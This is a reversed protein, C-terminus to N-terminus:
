FYRRRVAIVASKFAGIIFYTLFSLRPSVCKALKFKDVININSKPDLMWFVISKSKISDTDDFANDLFVACNLLVFPKIGQKKCRASFEDDGGYHSLVASNYNGIKKFIEIPHLLFRGTIFDVEIETELLSKESKVGEIIKKTINLFWSRVIVGTTIYLDPDSSSLTAPACIVKRQNAEVFTSMKRLVDLDSIRVDNNMLILYDQDSCNKQLIHTIGREVAGTWFLKGDGQIMEVEPFNKLIFDATGDTSGDDVVLISLEEDLKSLSNLCSVTKDLRNHVPVVIHFM